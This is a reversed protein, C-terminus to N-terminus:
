NGNQMPDSIKGDNVVVTNEYRAAETILVRGKLVLSKFHLMNQL